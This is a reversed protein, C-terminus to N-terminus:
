MWMGEAAKVFAIMPDMVMTKGDLAIDKGVGIM